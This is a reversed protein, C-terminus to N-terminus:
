EKINIKGINPVVFKKYTDSGLGCVFYKTKGETNLWFIQYGRDIPLDLKQGDMSDCVNLEVIKTIVFGKYFAKNGVKGMPPQKYDKDKILEEFSITKM